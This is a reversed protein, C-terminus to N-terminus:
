RHNLVQAHHNDRLIIEFEVVKDYHILFIHSDNEKEQFFDIM